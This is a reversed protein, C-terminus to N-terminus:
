DRYDASKEDNRGKYAYYLILLIVLTLLTVGNAIIIVADKLHAGYAIWLSVGCSLQVLTLLSMDKVSKTKFIKIIQPIFSFMTLVAAASGIIKWLM